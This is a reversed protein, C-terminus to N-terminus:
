NAKSDLKETEPTGGDFAIDGGEEDIGSFAGWEALKLAVSLTESM